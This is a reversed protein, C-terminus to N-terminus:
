APTRGTCRDLRNVPRLTKGDFAVIWRMGDRTRLEVRGSDLFSAGDFISSTAIGPGPVAFCALDVAGERSALGARSRLRLVVSDIRYLTPSNYQIVEYGTTSAVVPGRVEVFQAKQKAVRAGLVLSTVAIAVALWQIVVVAGRSQLGLRAALACLIAGAAIGAFPHAVLRLYVFHHDDLYAILAVVPAAIGLVLLGIVAIRRLRVYV